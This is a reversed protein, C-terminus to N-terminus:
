PGALARVTWTRRWRAMHGPMLEVRVFQEPCISVANLHVRTILVPQGEVACALALGTPAQRVEFRGADPGGDAPKFACNLHPAPGPAPTALVRAEAGACALLRPLHEQDVWRIGVAVPAPFALVLGPGPDRDDLRVFNHAYQETAFIETGTNALAYDIVLADDALQVRAEYRYAFRNLAATQAFDAGDARWSATTSALAQAPMAEWFKYDPKQKIVAGVGIKLFPQGVEAYAFGPPTTMDFEQALGCGETARDKVPPNFLLERGKWALRLVAAVPSFRVGTHYRDPAAPDMIEAALDGCRLLRSGPHRPADEAAAASALLFVGIICCKNRM